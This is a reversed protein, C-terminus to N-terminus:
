RSWARHVKKSVPMLLKPQTNGHAMVFVELDRVFPIIMQRTIGRIGAIIKSGGYYYTHGFGIMYEPDDAFRLILLLTLGLIQKPDDPWALQASGVMGGQSKISEALFADLDLGATLQQNITEPAPERLLRGLAKIPRSYSQLDASQLDLVANNIQPLPRAPGDPRM